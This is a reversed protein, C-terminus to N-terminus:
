YNKLEEIVSTLRTCLQEVEEMTNYRGVSIRLSGQVREDSLGMAKLVYSPSSLEANCASGTAIAFEQSVVEMVMSADVGSFSINCTNPLRSNQIGNVLTGNIKLLESELHDRLIGLKAAEKKIDMCLASAKGMGVIGPVNLTGSRLGGEQGGGHIIPSLGKRDIEKSIYLGGVGKPGYFKHASCALFDVGLDFVDVPIKGIAQTADCLFPIERNHAIAVADKVPQIVGTENNALMIAVLATDDRLSKELAELDVLGEESVQLWTTEIGSKKLFTCTDIIAKHETSVTVFHKKQASIKAFSQLVINISETAGSTFLFDSHKCNLMEAVTERADEVAEEAEAGFCHGTSGPNGPVENFYPLMAELVRPDVATTANNDFYVPATM